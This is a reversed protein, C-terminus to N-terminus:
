LWYLGPGIITTRWNKKRIGILFVIGAIISTASAIYLYPLTVNIDTFGAGYTSGRTSYLLNIIQLQFAIALLIFFASIFYALSKVIVKLPNMGFGQNYFSFIFTLIAPGFLLFLALSYIVELM